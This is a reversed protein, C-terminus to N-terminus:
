VEEYNIGKLTINGRSGGTYFILCNFYKRESVNCIPLYADYTNDGVLVVNNSKAVSWLMNRVESETYYREDHNHSPLGTLFGSDNTLQSTKTPITGSAFGSDNTLQSTKTPITPFDTIDSKAHTHSSNAKENLAVVVDSATIPDNQTIAM